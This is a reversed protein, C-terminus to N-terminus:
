SIISFYSTREFSINNFHFSNKRQFHGYFNSKWSLFTITHYNEPSSNHGQKTIMIVTGGYPSTEGWHNSSKLILIEEDRLPFSVVAVLGTM